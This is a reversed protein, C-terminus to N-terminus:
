NETVAHVISEDHCCGRRTGVRISKGQRPTPQTKARGGNSRHTLEAAASPRCGVASRDRPARQVGGAIDSSLRADEGQLSCRCWGRLITCRASRRDSQIDIKYDPRMAANASEKMRAAWLESFVALDPASTITRIPRFEADRVTVRMVDDAVASLPWAAVVGGLLAIFRRRRMRDLWWASMAGSDRDYLAVTPDLLAQDHRRRRSRFLQAALMM